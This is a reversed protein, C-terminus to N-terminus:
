RVRLIAHGLVNGNGARIELRLEGAEAPTFLADYTEGPAMTQRTIRAQQHEPLDAGDKAVLKLPQEKANGDVITVYPGPRATMIQVMRLRYTKGAKMELVPRSEGNILVLSTDNPTGFVIVRDLDPDFATGAKVVVLAGYLGGRQQRIEDVHTHYIFTGARPPTMRAVFSDNPAILPSVRSGHGSFGPAGDNFSELEIGHWHVATPAKGRNIVTIATAENQQLVITPGAANREPADHFSYSWRPAKEGAVSDHQHVNLRIQRRPRDDGPPPGNVTIGMMLNSMGHPVDHSHSHAAAKMPGLPAHLETHLPLHCHFLWHGAREPTWVLSMTSFGTMRETVAKRIGTRAFLTDARTDGRATVDFYFGHLHMPHPILSANIVRWRISDGVAHIMRETHPWSKGNLTALRAPAPTMGPIRVTDMMMNIVLVRDAGKMEGPADVVFAGTAVLDNGIPPNEPSAIRFRRMAGYMFNGAADAKLAFSRTEGPQLRVSDAFAHTGNLGFFLLSEGLANHVSARVETGLPVRILPAPVTGTAGVERIAIVDIGPMDEADPHWRGVGIELNLTLVGGALSGAPIRNDNAALRPLQASAHAAISLFFALSLIQVRM